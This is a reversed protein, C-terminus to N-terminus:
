PEPCFEFGRANERRELPSRGSPIVGLKLLQPRFEYRIRVSAIPRPDLDLSVRRVDHRTRGGMGTAAYEDSLASQAEAAAAAPAPAAKAASDRSQSQESRERSPQYRAVPRRRERYFVAEIVGLNETEGLSAGYSSREGTFVFRRASRDSVQWGEIEITEYPALVWKASSVPDAHKADITNLGDVALAVAIREGTPNTLRLAYERGRLAEIYVTGNHVHKPRSSGDVVVDLDAGRHGAFAIPAALLMSAFLLPFAYRREHETKELERTRM